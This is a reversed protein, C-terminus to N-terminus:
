QQIIRWIKYDIPNMLHLSNLPWLDPLEYPHGRARKPTSAAFSACVTQTLVAHSFCCLKLRRFFGIIRNILERRVNNNSSM